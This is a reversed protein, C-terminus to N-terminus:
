DVFESWTTSIFHLQKTLRNETSRSNAGRKWLRQCNMSHCAQQKVAGRERLTIQRLQEAEAEARTKFVEQRSQIRPPRSLISAHRQPPISSCHSFTAENRSDDSIATM